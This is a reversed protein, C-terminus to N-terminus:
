RRAWDFQGQGRKRNPSSAIYGPKPLKMLATDKTNLLSRPQGRVTMYVTTSIVELVLLLRVACITIIKHIWIREGHENGWLSKSTQDGIGATQFTTSAGFAAGRAKNVSNITHEICRMCVLMQQDRVIKSWFGYYHLRASSDTFLILHANYWQRNFPLLTEFIGMMLFILFSDWFFLWPMLVRCSRRCHFFFILLCSSDCAFLTIACFALSHFFVYCCFGGLLFCCRGDHLFVFFLFFHCQQLCGHLRLFLLLLVACETGSGPFLCFFVGM